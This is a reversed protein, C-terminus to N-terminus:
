ESKLYQQPDRHQHFLGLVLVKRASEDIFFTVLYPFRKLYAIHILDTLIQYQRPNGKMRDFVSQLEQHLQDGVAASQSDYWKVAEVIDSKAEPRLELAFSM